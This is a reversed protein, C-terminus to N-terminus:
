VSPPVEPVRVPKQALRRALGSASRRALLVAAAAALWVWPSWPPLMRIVGALQAGGVRAIDALGQRDVFAGLLMAGALLLLLATYRLVAALLEGAKTTSGELV